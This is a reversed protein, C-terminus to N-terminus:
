ATVQATTQLPQTVEALFHGDALQMKIADGLDGLRPLGQRLRELMKPATEEHWAQLVEQAKQDALKAM